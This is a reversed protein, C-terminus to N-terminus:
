PDGTRASNLFGIIRAYADRVPEDPTLRIRGHLQDDSEVLEVHRGGIEALKRIFPIHVRKDSPNHLAHVPTQAPAFLEPYAFGGSISILARIPPRSLGFYGSLHVLNFATIAGASNGGVAVWNSLNFNERRKGLWKLANVTDELAAFSAAGSLNKRFKPDRHQQLAPIRAAVDPTLDSQEANLRYNISAYAYGSKTLWRADTRHGAWAKDGHHFGGGHIWLVLPVPGKANRPLSLDMTLPAMSGGLPADGYVLDKHEIYHKPPMYDQM